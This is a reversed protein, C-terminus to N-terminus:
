TATVSEREPLAVRALGVNVGPITFWVRAGGGERNGAGFTGGHAVVASAVTALGLGSGIGVAHAARVFPEFLSAPPEDGLGPGRDLVEVTLTGGGAEAEISCRVDVESGRGAYTVANSLLNGIAHEVRVRDIMVVVDPSDLKILVGLERTLPDVGRVVALALDRLRVPRREVRGADDQTAALELLSTVLSGLRLADGQAQRVAERFEDLRAGDREVIELEARLAALPTRLEHAAMAVFLRQREVSEAIRDLMGNLTMTLRGVEDMRSPASLRRNLNGPGLGAADEILQDVPRLARGALLWGGFLSAAGVSLGVWVLLRALAAQADSTQKLDAGTVVLTGDPAKETRVLYHRGGSDFTGNTPPLGPPADVTADLPSGDAAFLAAFVGPATQDAEQLGSQSSNEISTIVGTARTALATALTGRLAMGMQWWLFLGVILLTLIIGAGYAAALRSRISM